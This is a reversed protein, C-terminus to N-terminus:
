MRYLKELYLRDIVSKTMENCNEWYKLVNDWQMPYNEIDQLIENLEFRGMDIDMALNIAIAKQERTLM